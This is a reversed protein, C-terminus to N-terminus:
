GCPHLGGYKGPSNIAPGNTTIMTSHSGTAAFRGILKAPVKDSAYTVLEGPQRRRQSSVIKLKAESDGTVM